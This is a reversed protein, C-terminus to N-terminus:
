FQQASFCCSDMLLAIINRVPISSPLLILSSDFVRTLITFIPNTKPSVTNSSPAECKSELCQVVQAVGGAKKQTELLTELVTQGQQSQVM